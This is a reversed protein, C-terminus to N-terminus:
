NLEKNKIVLLLENYNNELNKYKEIISQDSLEKEKLDELKKLLEM